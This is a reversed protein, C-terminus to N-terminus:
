TYRSSNITVVFFRPFPLFIYFKQFSGVCPTNRPPENHQGPQGV